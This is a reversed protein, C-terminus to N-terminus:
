FRANYAEIAKSFHENRKSLFVFEGILGAISVSFLVPAKTFVSGTSGRQQNAQIAGGIAALIAAGGCLLGRTLDKQGIHLQMASPEYARLREEVMTETVPTGDITYQVYTHRGHRFVSEKIQNKGDSNIFGSYQATAPVTAAFFAAITIIIAIRM